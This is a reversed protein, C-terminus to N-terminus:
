VCGQRKACRQPGTPALKGTEAIEVIVGEAETNREVGLGFEARYIDGRARLKWRGFDGFVIGLGSVGPPLWCSDHAVHRRRLTRQSLFGSGHPGHARPPWAQRYLARSGRIRRWGRVLMFSTAALIESSSLVRLPEDGAELAELGANVGDESGTPWLGPRSIKSSFPELLWYKLSTSTVRSM